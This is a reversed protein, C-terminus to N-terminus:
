SKQPRSAQAADKSILNLLFARDFLPVIASVAPLSLFFFSLFSRGGWAECIGALNNQTSLKVFEKREEKGAKKPGVVGCWLPNASAALV